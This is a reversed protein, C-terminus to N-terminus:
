QFFSRATSNQSTAASITTASPQATREAPADEFAMASWALGLFVWLYPEDVLRGNLQSELFIVIVAILPALIYARRVDDRRVGAVSSRVYEFAWWAALVLGVLGLEALITVLSTHSESTTYGSLIFGRYPGLIAKPFGGFGIGFIPHDYFMQLGAAILYHRESDLPLFNLFDLGTREFIHTPPGTLNQQLISFRLRVQPVFLTIGAFVVVAAAAVMLAQRRQRSTAVALVLAAGGIVWAQRSYTFPLAAASLMIAAIMVLRTRRGSVVPALAVGAVVMCTLLRGLVNPDAFTANVRALGITPANWIYGGTIRQLIGIIALGICSVALWVWLRDQRPVTRTWNYIAVAVLAYALAAGATRLGHLSRTALASILAYTIFAAPPVWLRWAPLRVAQGAWVALILLTLIVAVMVLRGVQFLQNPFWLETFELPITLMLLALLLGPARAVFGNLSSMRLGSAGASLGSEGV